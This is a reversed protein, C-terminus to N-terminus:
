TDETAPFLALLYSVGDGSAHMTDPPYSSSALFSIM